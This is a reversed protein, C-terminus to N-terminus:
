RPDVDLSFERALMHVLLDESPEGNVPLKNQQQYTRIADQLATSMQGDPQGIYLNQRVLQEQIQAIVAVNQGSVSPKVDQAPPPPPETSAAPQAGLAKVAEPYQAAQATYITMIDSSKLNARTALAALAGQADTNGADAALKYWFIAAEQAEANQGLSLAATVLGLNAARTFYAVARQRSAAMGQGMQAAVGLNYLAEPHGLYAAARYYEVAKAADAPTGLGQQYLVGLNYRANAVGRRAALTFWDVARAYDQTVADSGATYLAALDHQAEADGAFAQREMAKVSSPLTPDPTILPAIVAAVATAAQGEEAQMAQQLQANTLVPAAPVAAQEAQLWGMSPLKMGTMAWGLLLGLAVFVGIVPWPRATIRNLWESVTTAWEREPAVASAVADSQPLPTRAAMSQDTLLVLARARLTDQTQLLTDEVGEIKRLLRTKDQTMQDLRRSLKVSDGLLDNIKVLLSTSTTESLGVREELTQTRSVADEVQGALIKQQNQVEQNRRILEEALKDRRTLNTQILQNQKDFRTSKDNLDDVLRRTTELERWLMDRETESRKLRDNVDMLLKVLRDRNQGALDSTAMPATTVPPATRMQVPSQPPLPKVSEPMDSIRPMIRRRIDPPADRLARRELDSLPAHDDGDDQPESLRSLRAALDAINTKKSNVDRTM